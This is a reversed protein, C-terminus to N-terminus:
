DLLNAIDSAKPAYYVAILIKLDKHGSLKALNMPDLKKALRTLAERRSDHFNLDHIGADIRARRFLTSAVGSSVTFGDPVLKLLRVAETSLPVDRDTGNKTDILTVFRDNLHIHNPTLKCMEGLRMATEIALMFLM